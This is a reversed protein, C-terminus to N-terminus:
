ANHQATSREGCYADYVCTRRISGCGSTTSRTTTRMAGECAESLALGLTEEVRVAARVAERVPVRVGLRVRDSDPVVVAVGEGLEDPESGGEGVVVAEGGTVPVGRPVPVADTLAVGLPEAVPVGGGVGTGLALGLPGGADGLAAPVGGDVGVRVRDGDCVPVFLAVGLLDAVRVDVAVLLGDCVGVGVRLAVRERDGVLDGDLLWVADFFFHPPGAAPPHCYNTHDRYYDTRRSHSRTHESPAVEM